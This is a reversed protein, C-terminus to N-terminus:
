LHEAAASMLWRGGSRATGLEAWGSAVARARGRRGSEAHSDCLYAACITAASPVQPRQLGQPGPQPACSPIGREPEWSDSPGRPIAPHQSPISRRRHGPRHPGCGQAGLSQMKLGQPLHQLKLGQLAAEPQQACQHRDRLTVRSFQPGVHQLHLSLSAM